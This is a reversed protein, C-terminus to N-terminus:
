TRPRARGQLDEPKEDNRSRPAAPPAAAKERRDMVELVTEAVARVLASREEEKATRQIREIADEPRNMAREKERTREMHNKPEPMQLRGRYDAAWEKINEVTLPTTVGDIFVEIASRGGRTSTKMAEIVGEFSKFMEAETMEFLPPLRFPAGDVIQKAAEPPTPNGSGAICLKGAFGYSRIDNNKLKFKTETTM